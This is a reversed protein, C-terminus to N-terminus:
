IQILSVPHTPESFRYSDAMMAYRDCDYPHDVAETNTVLVGNAYYLHAANVTLNYVRRVGVSHWGCRYSCTTTKADITRFAAACESCIREPQRAVRDLYACRPSCLIKRPHRTRFTVRCYGCALEHEPSRERMKVANARLIRRGRETGRWEHLGRKQVPNANRAALHLSAHDSPSLVHFNSPENHSTDGDEHHVHYGQPIGKGVIAHVDRYQPKKYPM